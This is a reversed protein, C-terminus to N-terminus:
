LDARHVAASPAGVKRELEAAPISALAEGRWSRIEGASAPTGLRAVAEALGLQGLARQANAALLLGAGVERLEAARELVAVEFGEQRLAIAATLGGIGAGAVTIQMTSRVERLARSQRPQSYLRRAGLLLHLGAAILALVAPLGLAVAYWRAGVRWLVVRGLLHKVGTGGEAVVIIAATAPGFLAPFGWLPSVSV